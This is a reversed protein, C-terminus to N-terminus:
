ERESDHNGYVTLVEFVAGHEGLEKVFRSFLTLLQNEEFPSKASFLHAFGHDRSM